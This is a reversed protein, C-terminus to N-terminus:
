NLPFSTLPISFVEDTISPYIQIATPRNAMQRDFPFLFVNFSFFKTNMEAKM